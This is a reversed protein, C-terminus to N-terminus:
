AAPVPELDPLDGDDGDDDGGKGGEAGVCGLYLARDIGPPAPNDLVHVHTLM